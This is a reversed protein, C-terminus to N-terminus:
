RLSKRCASPPGTPTSRSSLTVGPLTASSDERVKDYTPRYLVPLQEPTAAQIKRPFPQGTVIQFILTTLDNRIRCKAPSASNGKTGPPAFHVRAELDRTLLYKCGVPGAVFRDDRM